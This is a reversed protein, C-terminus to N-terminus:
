AAQDRVGPSPQEQGPSRSRVGTVLGIAYVPLLVRGFDQWRLWVLRGMVVALVLQAAVVWRLDAPARRLGAYTALALLVFVAWDGSGWGRAASLFGAFPLGLRGAKASFSWAGIRLRLVIVWACWPAAALMLAVLRRWETRARGSALLSVALAAPVLLFTERALGALGLAAGLTAVARPRAVWLWLGAGILALGLVESTSWNLAVIAGPAALVAPGLVWSQGLARAL